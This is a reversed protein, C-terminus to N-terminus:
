GQNSLISETPLHLPASSGFRALQYPKLDISATEHRYLQLILQATIAAQTLGLHQHGFALLVQGKPGTRDIVPLSDPLSPRRGMWPTADRCDLPRGFLAQAHQELMHARRMDAEKELGAFEVTGALRLGGELPTMIFRREASTVPFPLAQEEHPLMLHYGRETDLPVKVGTLAKVLPKAYAGNAILVHRCRLSGNSSHLEVGEDTLQGGIIDAQEYVMGRQQASGILVEVLKLPNTVHGTASFELAGLLNPSLEPARELLQKANIHTVPIQHPSLKDMLALLAAQTQQKEYALFSGEVKILDTREISGLLDSWAGLSASNLASLADTSRKYAAPLMNAVLRLMWPTIQPLYRWDIRLPGLPDAIMRPLQLLMDSSALPLVQESALHGANGSSAGSGPAERELLHVSLGSQQLAFACSAGIVGGGVIAIDSNLNRM